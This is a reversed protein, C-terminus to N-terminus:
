NVNISEMKGIRQGMLVQVASMVGKEFLLINLSGGYQFYGVPDGKDIALPGAYSPEGKRGVFTSRGRRTTVPLVSNIEALGVAIQAVHGYKSTNYIYYSRKFDEFTSFEMTSSGVNGRGFWTQGDVNQNM